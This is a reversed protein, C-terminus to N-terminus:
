VQGGCLPISCYEWRRDPDTTYCWPGRPESGYPNRCYNEQDSIYGYGHDHPSQSNWRMCTRGSITRNTHGFYDGGRVSTLCENPPTECKPIDCYEWRKAPDTTYCWPGRPERDPNRCYNKQDAMSSTFRHGHPTSENWRQCTRNSATVSIISAYEWGITSRRCNEKTTSDENECRDGQYGPFCTCTFTDGENKCTGGNLCPNSHCPQADCDPVDCIEWRRNPDTTYCWPRREGDINRCYNEQASYLKLSHSHPSKTDWRQCTRGSATENVTGFYDFGQSLLVCERAKYNCAPIDCYEWRTTNDTTFCWPRQERGGPNRCYNEHAVLGFNHEHPTQSNWRQCTKGSSTRSVRGAYEFGIRSRTCEDYECAPIDCYEWRKNPDMTYCWPHYNSNPYLNRCYNSDNFLAEYATHSHPSQEAWPQCARGSRTVNARGKYEGGRSSTLCETFENVELCTGVSLIVDDLAIDSNWDDGRIAEFIIKLEEMKQITVQGYKWDSGQNGSQTWAVSQALDKGSVLVNLTDVTHGFMHYRFSLCREAAPFTPSSVLWAKDGKVRPSSMETFIYNNGKYAREPGTGQSSSSGSNLAWDFDDGESTNELFCQRTEFSCELSTDDSLQDCLEGTFGPYCACTFQCDLESERCDGYKCPNNKCGRGVANFRLRFGKEPVRDQVFQSNFTLTMFNPSDKSGTWQDGIMDGCRKIGTQGPLNYQIELWHYCRDLNNDALHLEEVTMRVYWGEPVKVGWRCVKGLPYSVPYGPSTVFVDKGLPVEIMGGCGDDTIVTECTEGTYGRPCYCVCDHNVFGGNVCGPPDTCHAACKYNVTIDKVDYFDLGEGAGTGALFELDRDLFEMSQGGTKSFAWLSYQMISEYDYANFDFTSTKAMNGNDINEKLNEKIMRIYEDRDSRSQEHMLGAAHLMEHISIGVSMCGSEHMGIVQPSRTIYGVYSWCGGSNRFEVYHNHGVEEALEPTYPLWKLCTRNNFIEAAKNIVDYSGQKVITNNDITFPVIAKPWKWAAKWFSRKKREVQDRPIGEINAQDPTLPHKDMKNGKAIATLEPHLGQAQYVKGNKEVAMGELLQMLKEDNPDVDEEDIMDSHKGPKEKKKGKEAKDKKGDNNNRKEEGFYKRFLRKGKELHDIRSLEDDPQDEKLYDLLERVEERLSDEDNKSKLPVSLAAALFVGVVFVARILM